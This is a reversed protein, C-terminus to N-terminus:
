QPDSKKEKLGHKSSKRTKKKKSSGNKHVRKKKFFKEPYGRKPIEPVIKKKSYSKFRMKLYKKLLSCM